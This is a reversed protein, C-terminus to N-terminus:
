ITIGDVKDYTSLYPFTKELKIKPLAEVFM